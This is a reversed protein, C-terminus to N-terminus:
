SSKKAVAYFSFELNGDLFYSEIWENRDDFYLEVGNCELKSGEPKPERTWSIANGLGVGSMERVLESGEKLIWRKYLRNAEVYETVMTLEKKSPLLYTSVLYKGDVVKLNVKYPEPDRKGQPHKYKLTVELVRAQSIASLEKSM